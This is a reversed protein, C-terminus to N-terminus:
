AEDRAPHRGQLHKSEHALLWAKRWLGGGYGTLRGDSGVVRHCPVIISIPNRHNAGGVARTAKRNGMAVALDGYSVTKGFPIQLLADWVKTQFKTGVLTLPVSFSTRQGRFYEGLQDLCVELAEPCDAAPEKGAGAGKREVFNIALIGGSGAQIELWGIPTELHATFTKPM